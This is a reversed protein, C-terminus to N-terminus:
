DADRYRRGIRRYADRFPLGEDVVLRYAEETAYLSQEMRINEPIFRIEPM